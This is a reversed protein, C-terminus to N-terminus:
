ATAGTLWKGLKTALDWGLVKAAMVVVLAIVLWRAVVTRLVWWVGNGAATTAREQAAAAMNDVITRATDPDHLVERIAQAMATPQDQHMASIRDTLRQMAQDFHHQALALPPSPSPDAM